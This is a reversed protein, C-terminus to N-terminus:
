KGGRERERLMADFWGAWDLRVITYTSSAKLVRDMWAHCADATGSYILLSSDKVQVAYEPVPVVPVEPTEDIKRM